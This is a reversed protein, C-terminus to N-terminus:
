QFVSLMRERPHQFQITSFPTTNLRKTLQWPDAMGRDEMWKCRDAMGNMCGLVSRNRTKSWYIPRLNPEIHVDFIHLLGDEELHDRLHQLFDRLYESDGTIGRGYFLVSYLSPVHTTLVYQVRGVTFLNGYWDM